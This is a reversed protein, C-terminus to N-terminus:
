KDDSDLKENADKIKDKMKECRNGVAVDPDSIGEGMAIREYTEEKKVYSETASHNPLDKDDISAERRPSDRNGESCIPVV